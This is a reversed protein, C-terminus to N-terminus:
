SGGCPWTVRHRVISYTLGGSRTMWGVLHRRTISGARDGRKLLKCQDRAIVRARHRPLGLRGRICVSMDVGIAHRAASGLELVKPRRGFLEIDYVVSTGQYRCNLLRTAFVKSSDHRGVVTNVSWTNRLM